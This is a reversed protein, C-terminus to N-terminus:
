GFCLNLFYYVFEEGIVRYTPTVYMLQKGSISYKGIAVYKKDDEEGSIVLVDVLM